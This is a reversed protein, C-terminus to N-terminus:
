IKRTEELLIGSGAADVGADNKLYDSYLTKMSSLMKDPPQASSSSDLMVSLMKIPYM